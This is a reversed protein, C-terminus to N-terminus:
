SGESPQQQGAAAQLGLAAGLQSAAGADSGGAAAQLSKLHGAPPLEGYLVFRLLADPAQM